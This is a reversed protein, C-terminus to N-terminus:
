SVDYTLRYGVICINNRGKFNKRMIPYIIVYKKWFVRVCGKCKQELALFFENLDGILQINVAMKRDCM